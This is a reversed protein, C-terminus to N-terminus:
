KAETTPLHGKLLTLILDYTLNLYEDLDFVGEDILYQLAAGEMLSVFIAPVLHAYRPSFVGEQVGREVTAAIDQRWVEYMWQIKPRILPDIVGQGWFDFFTEELERQQTLIWRQQECFVRLMEQPELASAALRRRRDEDFSREMEDLLALLLEAKSAFHYHLTGQSIGAQQAIQRMRTGSIKHRAIVAMAAELIHQRPTVEPETQAAM